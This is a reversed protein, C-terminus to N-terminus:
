SAKTTSRGASIIANIRERPDVSKGPKEKGSTVAADGKPPSTAPAGFPSRLHASAELLPVELRHALSDVAGTRLGPQVYGLPLHQEVVSCILRMGQNTVNMNEDLKQMALSVQEFETRVESVDADVKAIRDKIEQRTERLETVYNQVLLLVEGFGEEAADRIGEIKELLPHVMKDLSRKSVFLLDDIPYGSVKLLGYGAAGVLALKLVNALLSSSSGGILITRGQTASVEQQVFRRMEDLSRKLHQNVVKLLERNSLPKDEALRLHHQPEPSATLFRWVQDGYPTCAFLSLGIICAAGPGINFLPPM